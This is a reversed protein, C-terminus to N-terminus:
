QHSIFVPIIGTGKKLSGLAKGIVAGAIIGSLPDAKQAHGPTESAMLLDGSEIPGPEATVKCYAYAGLTVMLGVNGNGIATRDLGPTQAETLSPEDVVGCIRADGPKSALAVEVLPIRNGTGYFVSVPRTHVVVLDGQELPKKARSYFRDVVYGLKWGTVLLNGNVQLDGNLTAIPPTAVGSNAPAISFVINNSYISSDTLSQSVAGVSPIQAFFLEGGTNGYFVCGGGNAGDSITHWNNDSGRYLNFGVASSAWATASGGGGPFIFPGFNGIQLSAQPNINGIGVNGSSNITLQQASNTFLGMTQSAPASIYVGYPSNTQQVNSFGFVSNTAINGLVDLASAPSTTGIGVNGGQTISMRVTFDTYLDLGYQNGGSTRKSAIGEGSANGFTLGPNVQANNANANDIALAGNLTMDGTSDIKLSLSGGSGPDDESSSYKGGVYFAFDSASRLYLTSTQVGIGYATGNLNLMQSQQTGFSLSGAPLTANGDAGITFVNTDTTSGSAGYGVTLRQPKNVPDSDDGIHIHLDAGGSLGDIRQIGLVTDGDSGDSNKFYLEGGDIWVDAEATLQLDVTLTGEIEAAVGTAGSPLPSPTSRDQITLVGAPAYVASAVSGAYIRGKNALATSSQLFRQNPGDWIVQGLPILWTADTNDDPLAQFPVSGDFPLEVDGENSPLTPQWSPQTWGKASPLSVDNGAVVIPDSTPPIPDIVIQFNEQVRSYANSQGQSSCTDSSPSIMQQTYGIWVSLTQKQSFDTFLDATLQYPAFVVCERGFGDVAVGPQIFVDVENNAGGNLFQAVDLGTVIGWTHPGINHRRRMDRHYEQEAEFDVAGLYEGEYYNLREIDTIDAM